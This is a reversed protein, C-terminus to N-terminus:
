TFFGIWQAVDVMWGQRQALEEVLQHVRGKLNIRPEYEKLANANFAHAWPRRRHM